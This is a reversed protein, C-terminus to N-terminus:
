IKSIELESAMIASVDAFIQVDDNELCLRFMYFLNRVKGSKGTTATEFINSQVYGPCVLTVDINHQEM